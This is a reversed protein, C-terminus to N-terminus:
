QGHERRYLDTIAAAVDRSFDAAIRSQTKAIEEFGTANLPATYTSNKTLLVQNDEVRMIGWRVMLVAQKGPEADFRSVGAIIQFAIGTNKPVPPEVIFATNLLKALNERLVNLFNTELPEAWRDFESLQIENPSTRIVIQQRNLYVPFRIPGLLIGEGEIGASPESATDVPDLSTLMYFRSPPSQGTGVCGTIVLAVTISTVLMAMIVAPKERM